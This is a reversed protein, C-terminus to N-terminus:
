MIGLEQLSATYNRVLEQTTQDSGGAFAQIEFEAVIAAAQANLQLTEEEGLIKMLEEVEGEVLMFGGDRGTLSFYERHSHVRGQKTLEEFRGVAKGLVDLGKAERGPIGTGWRILVAGNMIGGTTDLM